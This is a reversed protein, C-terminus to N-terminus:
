KMMRKIIATTERAALLKEHPMVNEVHYASMVIGSDSVWGRPRWPLQNVTKSTKM